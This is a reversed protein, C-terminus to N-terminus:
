EKGTILEYGRKSACVLRVSSHSELTKRLRSVAMRLRGKWEKSHNKALEPWLENVLKERSLYFHNAQLLAWLLETAQYTLPIREGDQRLAMEEPFFVLPDIAYNGNEDRYICDSVKKRNKSNTEMFM